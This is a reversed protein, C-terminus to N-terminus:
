QRERLKIFLKDVGNFTEAGHPFLVGHEGVGVELEQGRVGSHVPSHGSVYSHLRMDFHLFCPAHRWRVRVRRRTWDSRSLHLRPNECRSSTM